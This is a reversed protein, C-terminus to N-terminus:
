DRPSPSTYLLCIYWRGNVETIVATHGGTTENEWFILWAKYGDDKLVSYVLLAFDECDGGQNLITENPLKWLNNFKGYNYVPIYPDNQYYLNLQTWKFLDILLEEGSSSFTSTLNEASVLAEQLYQDRESQNVTTLSAITYIENIYKTYNNMSHEYETSNERLWSEYIGLKRSLEKNEETLNVIEATYKEILRNCETTNGILWTQLKDVTANCRSLKEKLNNYDNLLKTYNQQLSSYNGAIEEYSKQLYGYSQNIRTLNSKLSNHTKRLEQYKDSLSSYKNKLTSLENYAHAAYAISIVLILILIMTLAIRM